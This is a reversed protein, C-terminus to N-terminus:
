DSERRDAQELERKRAVRRRYADLMPLLAHRILESTPFGQLASEDRLASHEADTLWVIAQRRLNPAPSSLPPEPM